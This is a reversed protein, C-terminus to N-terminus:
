PNRWPMKWRRLAIEAPWSLVLLILSLDYWSFDTEEVRQTSRILEEELSITSNELEKKWLLDSLFEDSPGSFRWEKPYNLEIPVM